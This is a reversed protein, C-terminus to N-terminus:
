PAILASPVYLIGERRTDFTYGSSPSDLPSEGIADAGGGLKRRVDEPTLTSDKQIVLAAVGAAHPTAMSTGSMRTTGGGLRTSLIGVSRLFCSKSIDEREEGPASITVDVGDTTFYSATDMAVPQPHFGCSSAGNVATTSAIALVEPYAAPIQQSVDSNPDNGAAVVVVIGLDYLAKVAAHLAPNDDVSGPRGLSMNVVRIAPQSAIWDLGAMITSDTGRGRQDLVKIAYLAAEPAVGIVDIGNNRAAVTGAVHTGHGDDDQCSTYATFCSAAVGLDAHNFDIGTDVIAVGVGTGTFSADPAGIRVIGAPTVQPSTPSSGGTPKGLKEVPRDPVVAVVDPHHQLFARGQTDVRAASAPVSKFHRKAVGAERVIRDRQGADIGERFIVIVDGSDKDPPAAHLVAPTVAMMGFLSLVLAILAM